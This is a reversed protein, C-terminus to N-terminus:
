QFVTYERLQPAMEWARVPHKSQNHNQKQKTITHSKAVKAELVIM